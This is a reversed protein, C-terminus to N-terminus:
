DGEDFLRRQRPLEGNMILGHLIEYSKKSMGPDEKLVYYIDSNINYAEKLFKVDSLLDKKVETIVKPNVGILKLIFDRDNKLKDGLNRYYSEHKIVAALAIDKDDKLSHDLYRFVGQYEKVLQIIFGKNNKLKDGAYQISMVNQDLAAKVVEENNKLRDSAHELLLGNKSVLIKVIKEDDMYKPDIKSKLNEPYCIRIENIYKERDSVKPVQMKDYIGVCLNGIGPILLVCSRSMSKDDIHQFYHNEQVTEKKLFPLILTKQILVGLNTLTSIGPIYDSFRDMKVLIRGMFSIKPEKNSQNVNLKEPSFKNSSIPDM